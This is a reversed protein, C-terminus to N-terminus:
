LFDNYDNYDDAYQDYSYDNDREIRIGANKKNAKKAKSTQQKQSKIKENCVANLTTILKKIDDTQLSTALSRFLNDLFDLYHPSRTFPNLKENLAKRFEEFDDKTALRISDLASSDSSSSVGFTEKALALDGEEVLRQQELKEILLENASKPRLNSENEKQIIKEKLAKNKKKGAKIATTKNEDTKESPKSTQATSSSKSQEEDEDDDDWNEKIDEDDEEQWKNNNINSVLTWGEEEM